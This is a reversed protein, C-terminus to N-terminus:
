GGVQGIRLPVLCAWLRGLASASPFGPFAEHRRNGRRGEDAIDPKFGVPVVRAEHQIKLAANGERLVPQFIGVPDDDLQLVGQQPFGGCERETVMESSM